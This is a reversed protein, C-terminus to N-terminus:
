QVQKLYWSPLHEKVKHKNKIHYVLNNKVLFDYFLKENPVKKRSKSLCQKILANLDKEKFNEYGPLDKVLTKMRRFDLSKLDKGQNDEKDDHVTLNGNKCQACINSKLINELEDLPVLVQPKM